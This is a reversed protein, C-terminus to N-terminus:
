GLRGQRWLSALDMSLAVSVHIVAGLAISRTRLSMFGLVLGAVISGLAEPMPKMFHLMCYPVTMVLISYAGFRHKLGHVLFGRFFFELGVFQLAYLAEWCWFTPCLAGREPRYFPYTQQFEPSNSVVLVLPVMVALMVAYVWGDTFAGRLKFGYDALREGFALRVLLAPVIFFFFFTGFAWWVFAGLTRADRVVALRDALTSLGLANLWRVSRDIEDILFVYRQLTLIVTASVLIAITKADAGPHAAVHARAEDNARRLPSLFDAWWRSLSNTDPM